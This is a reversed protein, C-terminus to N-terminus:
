LKIIAEIKSCDIKKITHGTRVVVPKASTTIILRYLHKRNEIKTVSIDLITSGRIVRKVAMEELTMECEAYDRIAKLMEDTNIM